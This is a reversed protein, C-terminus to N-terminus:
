VVDDFYTDCENCYFDAPHGNSLLKIRSSAAAVHISMGVLGASVKATRHSSGCKPCAPYQATELRDVIEIIGPHSEEAHQLWERDVKVM